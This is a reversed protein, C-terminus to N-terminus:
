LYNKVNQKFRGLDCTPCNRELQNLQDEACKIYENEIFEGEPDCKLSLYVAYQETWNSYHPQLKEALCHPEQFFSFFAKTYTNIFRFCWPALTETLAGDTKNMIKGIVLIYFPRLEEDSSLLKELVKTTAQNDSPVINELWLQKAEELVRDHKLYYSVNCVDDLSSANKIEAVSEIKINEHNNRACGIMFLLSYLYCFVFYLNRIMFLTETHKLESAM